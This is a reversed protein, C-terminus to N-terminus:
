ATLRSRSKSASCIRQCPAGSPPAAVPTERDKLSREFRDPGVKESRWGFVAQKCSAILRVLRAIREWKRLEEAKAALRMAKAGAVDDSLDGGGPARWTTAVL